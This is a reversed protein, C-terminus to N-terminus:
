RMMRADKWSDEGHCVQCNDGFKGRHPDERSHCANCNKSARVETDSPETHCAICRLGDHKGNLPFDTETRHDFVWIKWGNPNHCRACNNSLSRKHTDDKRHCEVCEIKADRFRPSAHCDECATTVHLGLLPFRTLDHEFFIDNTWSKENHCNACSGDLQGRHVDDSAHCSKCEAIAGKEREPTTKHCGTCAVEEHQGRLPFRSKKDHDFTAKRWQNSGHCDQCEKGLLGRHSDVVAHCSICTTELKVKDAPELHCAECKIEKHRGQLPFKTEKDHDYTGSEKFSEPSHCKACDTGFSGQHSDDLQHCGNCILPVGKYKASPHCRGCTVEQHKGVLPYETKSHDFEARTWSEDGHCDACKKGLKGDHRDQQEHCSYCDSPAERHKLPESAKAKHCGECAAARHAGKLPYDSSDHNFGAPDLGMIDHDRGKHETHCSRCALTSAGQDRGHFGEGATRDADVEKHCDMCLHVERKEDFPAHCKSCENEEEAHARSVPGPMMLREIDIAAVESAFILQLLSAAFSAHGPNKISVTNM